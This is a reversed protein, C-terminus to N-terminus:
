PTVCPWAARAPDIAPHRMVDGVGLGLAASMGANLELVFQIGDGGVIPTRDLPIADKHIHRVVGSADAFIIDLPILTNEMWFRAPQPREYVFLMGSMRPMQEVFMLGQARSAPTDAVEVRFRAAGFAGRM